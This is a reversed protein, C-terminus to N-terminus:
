VGKKGFSFLGKKKKPAESYDSPAIGNGTVFRVINQIQRTFEHKPNYVLPTGYNNSKIVEETRKIRAVCPYPFSEEIEKVSIGTSQTPMVNNVVLRIKNTDFGIKTMTNVFSDNCNATTIDQTAIMLVYNSAELALVSSDRTNNGTDCIVFDFEGNEIINHLMVSLETEGIDMSDEHVVPAILVYLGTKDMRQLWTSEMDQRDYLIENPNEGKAIREKIDASWHAMNVGKPNMNLTTSIDGFDINYDVLCVRFNHRGNSTLALCVATQSAITTKGVGGKAAYVTITKTKSSGSTRHFVGERELASDAEADIRQQRSAAVREAGTMQPESFQTVITQEAPPQSQQYQAAPKQEVQIEQYQRAPPAIVESNEYIPAPRPEPAPQKPINVMEQVAIPTQELADLLAETAQMLGITPINLEGFRM